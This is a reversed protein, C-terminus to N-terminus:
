WWIHRTNLDVVELHIHVSELPLLSGIKEPWEMFIWVQQDLYEELGMDLAEMENKLRYFDFHYGLLTGDEFHYENVLGFTPSNASGAGGLEKVMAKILTTKGAGMSGHFALTKNPVTALLQQAVKHIESQTYVIKKM